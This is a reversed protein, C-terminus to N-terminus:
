SSPRASLDDPLQNLNEVWLERRDYPYHQWAPVQASRLGYIPTRTMLAMHMMGNDIGIFFRARALATFKEPLSAETLDQLGPLPTDGLNIAGPYREALRWRYEPSLQKFESSRADLSLCPPGDNLRPLDKALAYGPCPLLGLWPSVPYMDPWPEYLPRLKTVLLSLIFEVSERISQATAGHLIHKAHGDELEPPGCYIWDAYPHYLQIQNVLDGLHYRQPQLVVPEHAYQLSCFQYYPSLQVFDTNTM